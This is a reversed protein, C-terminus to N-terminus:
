SKMEIYPLLSVSIDKYTRAAIIDIFSVETLHSRRIILNNFHTWSVLVKSYVQALQRALLGFSTPSLKIM